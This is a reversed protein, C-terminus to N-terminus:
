TKESNNEVHSSWSEPLDSSSDLVVTVVSSPADSVQPQEEGEWSSPCQEFCHDPSSCGQCRAAEPCSRNLPGPLGCNFCRKIYCNKAIHGTIDCKRCTSVQGEYNVALCWPGIYIFSPIQRSLVMKFTMSGSLIDSDM